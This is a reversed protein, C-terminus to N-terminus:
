APRTNRYFSSSFPVPRVAAAQRGMNGQGALGIDAVLTGEEVPGAVVVVVALGVLQAWQGAM